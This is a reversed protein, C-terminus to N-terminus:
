ALGFWAHENNTTIQLGSGQRLVPTKKTPGTIQGTTRELTKAM